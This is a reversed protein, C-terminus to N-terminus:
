SSARRRRRGLPGVEVAHVLLERARALPEASSASDSLGSPSASGAAGGLRRVDDGDVADVVGPDHVRHRRASAARSTFM